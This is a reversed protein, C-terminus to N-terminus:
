ASRRIVRFYPVIGNGGLLHRAEAIVQRANRINNM